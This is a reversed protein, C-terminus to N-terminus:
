ERDEQVEAMQDRLFQIRAFLDVERSWIRFYNWQAEIITQLQHQEEPFENWEVYQAYKVYDDNLDGLTKRTRKVAYLAQETQQQRNGSSSTTSNGQAIEPSLSSDPLLLNGFLALEDVFSRLEKRLNHYIQHARDGEVQGDTALADVSSSSLPIVHDYGIADRLYMEARGLQSDGLKGLAATATDINGDPLEESTVNGWFLHSSHSHVHRCEDHRSTPHKKKCPLSLYLSIHHRNEQVFNMFDHNWQWLKQQYESLQESTYKIKAHDLDQYEGIMVYGRDLYRRLTKWLDHFSAEEEKAEERKRHKKSTHADSQLVLDFIHWSVHKSSSEVIHEFKGLSSHKSYVPSFVDFLDRTKLMTKRLLYVQEPMVSTSNKTDATSITSICLDITEQFYPPVLLAALDGFTIDPQIVTPISRGGIPVASDEDDAVDDKYNSGFISDDMKIMKEFSHHKHLYWDPDGYKKKDRGEYEKDHLQKFYGWPPYSPPVEVKTPPQDERLLPVWMVASLSVALVASLLTTYTYRRPNHRTRYRSIIRTGEHQPSDDSDSSSSSLMIEEDYSNSIPISFSGYNIPMITSSENHPSPAYSTNNFIFQSREPTVVVITGCSSSHDDSSDVEHIVPLLPSISRRKRAINAAIQQQLLTITLNKRDNEEQEERERRERRRRGIALSALLSSSEVVM